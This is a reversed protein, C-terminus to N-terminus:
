DGCSCGEDGETLGEGGDEDDMMMDHDANSDVHFLPAKKKPTVRKTFVPKM